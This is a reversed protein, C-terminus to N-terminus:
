ARRPGRTPRPAPDPAVPEPAAVPEPEVPAPVPAAVPAPAPAPPLQVAPEIDARTGRTSMILTTLVIGTLLGLFVLGIIGVTPLGMLLAIWPVRTRTTTPETQRALTPQTMSRHGTMSAHSRPFSGVANEISTPLVLHGNTISMDIKNFRGTVELACAQLARVLEGATSFRGEPDKSLCTMTVWELNPPIAAGPNIQAFTPPPANLHRHIVAALSEQRFPKRGTLMVYLMVGLSYIDSRPTLDQQLIQEPSMYSPSGVIMGTETATPGDISSDVDKVLGFDLVKVYEKGDAHRTLIINSPKLDRHILGLSHAESLSACIQTMLDIVRLPDMPVGPTLADRLTEGELLEMAIYYIDDKTQGYDHIRVTNPHKLRACISAERFFRQRFTDAAADRPDLTLIKIAVTRGLPEQVARYVKGMGGAAIKEVIRYRGDLVRGLLSDDTSSPTATSQAM